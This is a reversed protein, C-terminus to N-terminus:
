SKGKGGFRRRRPDQFGEVAARYKRYKQSALLLIHLLFAASGVAHRRASCDGDALPGM